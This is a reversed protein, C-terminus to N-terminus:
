SARKARRAAVEDVHVPGLDTNESPMGSLSGEVDRWVAGVAIGFVGQGNHVLDIVESETTCDYVSVGDSMLTMTALDSLGRTRVHTVATRITQLSLGADLLRKVIKLTLIDHFSYLRQSGSGHANRISPTVLDTRAWYDLQRYTVDAAACAVPGRYGVGDTDPRVDFLTEQSNSPPPALADAATSSTEVKARYMGLTHNHPEVTNGNNVSAPRQRIHVSPRM